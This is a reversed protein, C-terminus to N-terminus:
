RRNRARSKKAAKNRAKRKSADFRAAARADRGKAHRGTGIGSAAYPGDGVDPMGAIHSMGAVGAILATTLSTGRM